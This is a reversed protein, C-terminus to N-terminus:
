WLLKVSNSYFRIYLCTVMMDLPKQQQEIVSVVHSFMLGVMQFHKIVILCYSYKYFQQRLLFVATTCWCLCACNENLKLM